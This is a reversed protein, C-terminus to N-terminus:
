TNQGHKVKYYRIFKMVASFGTLFTLDNWLKLQALLMEDNCKGLLMTLTACNCTKFRKQKLLFQGGMSTISKHSPAVGLQFCLRTWTQSTKRHRRPKDSFTINIKINMM